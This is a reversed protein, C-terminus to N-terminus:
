KKGGVFFYYGQSKMRLGAGITYKIDSYQCNILRQIATHLKSRKDIDSPSYLKDPQPIIGPPIQGSNQAIIEYGAQTLSDRAIQNKTKRKTKFRM